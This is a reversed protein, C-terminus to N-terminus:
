GAMTCNTAASARCRRPRSVRREMAESYKKFTQYAESSVASQLMHILGVEWAHAEGGKRYKYFGGIPLASDGLQLLHLNM